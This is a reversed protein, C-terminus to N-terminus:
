RQVAGIDGLRRNSRGEERLGRIMRAKITTATARMAQDVVGRVGSGVRGPGRPHGM